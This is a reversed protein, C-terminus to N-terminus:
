TYTQSSTHTLTHTHANTYTHACLHLQPHTHGRMCHMIHGCFHPLTHKTPTENQFGLSLASQTCQDSNSSGSWVSGTHCFHSGGHRVRWTCPLPRVRQCSLDEGAPPMNSLLTKIYFSIEKTREQSINFDRLILWTPRNARAGLFPPIVSRPQV